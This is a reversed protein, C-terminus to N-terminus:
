QVCWMPPMVMCATAVGLGESLAAKALWSAATRAMSALPSYM